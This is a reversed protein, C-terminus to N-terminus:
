TQALAVATRAAARVGTVDRFIAVRHHAGAIDVAFISDVIERETGDACLLSCIFPAPAARSRVPCRALMTAHERTPFSVLYDRGRLQELPYGLMECAAPNAYVYRRDADTVVIGDQAGALVGALASLGLAAADALASPEVGTAMEEGDRVETM